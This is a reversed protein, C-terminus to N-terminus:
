LEQIARFVRECNKGDRYQFTRNMRDVYILDPECNKGLVERLVRILDGENQVVPGFGHAEYDFYGKEYTHSHNNFVAEQDFQYYIVTKSLLAFDFAISSFDTIMLASKQLLDQVKHSHYSCVCIQKPFYFGDLYPEIEPHPFFIISYGKETLLELLYPNNLFSTWAKAYSSEFFKENFRRESLKNYGGVISKRWTPAVLIVNEKVGSYALLKDHRPLGTLRIEKKTLKYRSNDNLLSEREAVTTTVVIAPDISNFWSSLDDKIVGHQLFVFPIKKDIREGSPSKACVAHSSILKSCYRLATQHKLSGYNILKFGEKELRSWDKSQNDLVFWANIEPENNMIYRYLHEGNDDAFSIRDSILWCNDFCSSPLLTNKIQEFDNIIDSILIIPKKKGKLLLDAFENGIECQFNGDKFNGLSVWCIKIYSFVRGCFSNVIIKDAVSFVESGDILFKIKEEKNRLIVELRIENKNKDYKTINIFRRFKENKKVFHFIETRLFRNMGKINFNILLDSNIKEYSRLLLNIFEGEVEQDCSNSICFKNRLKHFFWYNYFIILNQIYVPIRGSTKESLNLLNLVGHHLSNISQEIKESNIFLLDLKISSVRLYYRADKLFCINMQDNIMFLYNIFLAEEFRSKILLTSFRIEGILDRRIFVSTVSLQIYDNLNKINRVTVQYYYKYRLPHIDFCGGGNGDYLIQNLSIFGIKRQQSYEAIQDVKEIAHNSFFDKPDAFCVWENKVYDMGFNRAAAVGEHEKTFVLINKPYRKGWKRLKELTGDRSGDDVLIIQIYEKFGLGQCVISEIFDDIYNEVNYCASIISYTSHGKIKKGFIISCRDKIKKVTLFRSSCSMLNSLLQKKIIKGVQGIM